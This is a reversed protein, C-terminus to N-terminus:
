GRPTDKTNEFRISVTNGMFKTLEELFQLDLRPIQNLRYIGEGRSIHAQGEQLSGIQLSGPAGMPLDCAILLYYYPLEPRLPFLTRNTLFDTIQPLYKLKVSIVVSKVRSELDEELSWIDDVIIKASGYRNDASQPEAWGEIVFMKNSLLKHKLKTWNRSWFILEVTSTEDELTGFAFDNQNKDKKVKIASVTGMVRVQKKTKLKLIQQVSSTQLAKAATQFRALPHGTVYFGLFEKEYELREQEPWPPTAVWELVDGSTAPDPGFLGFYNTSDANRQKLANDLSAFLVERSEGGSADFAGSKILAEIVKKNVKKNTIRKCFDFLNKFPKKQRAELIIEIAGLGLGKIAGLGFRIKNNDVTFEYGSTNVDPPLVELSDFRCEQILEAIKGQDDQESTMLAAMFEVPYHAKLWATQYTVMAYAASHSKNFGYAAFKALQDFITAATKEDVGKNLCRSIFDPKLRAMESEKKKGMARRLLDAEGLSFDALVQAIRMVQEQYLIVGGTEELIPRLLPHHYEPQALGQRVKVFQAGQGSSLPGPRYLALLIMIDELKVPRLNRLYQRIGANEMQFIGNLNGTRLFQFTTPDDQPIEEIDVTIGKEALIRVCHKILTLTQLGLFDFKILGIEEVGGLEFQTAVVGEGKDTARSSVFLPLHEMLPKDGIVVGSAHISSHRPLNELTQAYDLLQKIQPRTDYALKLRPEREIASKLTIKQDDTPILKSLTDVESLPIDLARGVDRIAARAKMQGLTLIQAVYESGGYTQTVYELVEARGETCFDVDIDPMSVREPNLFREFLLDFRIPDISTIGLAFAALSGAASGRGPGVPIKHNKAYAIFDAVILFYGAFGVSCIVELELELRSLYKQKEEPSKHDGLLERKQFFKELGERAQIRIREEPTSNDPSPLNPFYYVKQKPFELDIENAIKLTNDCAEPCYSFLGRMEEPSRLYYTNFPMRMREVEQVRKATQICLLIDHALYDEKKLYHCDNTAVLPLGIERSLEILAQNVLTQDPIQNEQIELYFRDPFLSAYKEIALKAANRGKYLIAQPIEGQLCASLAILGSNYRELLEPDVRPKHYFGEINALSIMRCLNHYGELNKALLVLHYRPQAKDKNKRDQPAVYTEVGIIPKISHARAEKYFNLVGFMQGHDTLAVAPMGMEKTTKILDPIKIAGDLLSYASHVHLHVFSM